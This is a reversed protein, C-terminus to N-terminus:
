VKLYELIFETCPNIAKFLEMPYLLSESDQYFLTMMM